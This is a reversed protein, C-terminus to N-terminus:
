FEIARNFSADYISRVKRINKLDLSIKKCRDLLVSLRTVLSTKSEDQQIKLDRKYLVIVDSLLISLTESMREIEVLSGNPKRSHFIVESSGDSETDNTIDSSAASSEPLNLFRRFNILHLHLESVFCGMLIRYAKSWDDCLSKLFELDKKEEDLM